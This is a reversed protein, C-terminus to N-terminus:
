PTVPKPLYYLSVRNNKNYYKKAVRRIDERTVALYRDIETNILNADNYFLYYNALALARQMVRSKDTIFDNEVKNRLKQFEKEPILNNQVDAIVADMSKELDSPEVGMNAVGFAIAVGPDELDLPFNGVFVAKQQDDVLSKYLRSSQGDSLLTGLMSVAYYDPTGIAPIRYTQVVAPLQINDFVTDKIEATLEPEVVTPRIIKHKGKPITSFYKKILMKAEDFDINGAISLVANNPVYFTKYFNVYDSETADDLHKMSGITTWRYPHVKFARKMSEELISGYPQNDVRQRREEKVVQRQTEIGKKEVKAHLMRESELWLGLALQNSPLVEHYVTRDNTTFANLTGGARSIYEDFKGRPINESGEFLLHEFFHAFGTRTPDDNKSGVHYSVTVAVIPTSKDQHLIVHLGNDLDYEVFEIKNMQAQMSAVLLLITATLLIKFRTM